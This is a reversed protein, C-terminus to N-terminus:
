CECAVVVERGWDTIVVEFSVVRVVLVLPFVVVVKPVEDEVATTTSLVEDVTDTTLLVEDVTDTTLLVEDVTDTTSLM